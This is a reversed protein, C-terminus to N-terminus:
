DDDTLDILPREASKTTVPADNGDVNKDFEDKGGDDSQMNANIFNNNSSAAIASVNSNDRIGYTQIIYGHVWLVARYSYMCCKLYRMIVSADEGVRELFQVESMEM